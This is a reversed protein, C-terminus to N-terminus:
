RNKENGLLINMYKAYAAFASPIAYKEKADEADVFLLGDTGIKKSQVQPQMEPEEVRVAYGTMHWEIHSFIHKAEGLPLIQITQLGQERLYQLVEEDTHKGELMPFEYM